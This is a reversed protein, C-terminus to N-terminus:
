GSEAPPVYLGDDEPDSITWILTLRKHWSLHKEKNVVTAGCISCANLEVFALSTIPIFEIMMPGGASRGLGAAPEAAAAGARGTARIPSM